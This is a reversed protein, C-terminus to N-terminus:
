AVVSAAYKARRFKLAYDHNQYYWDKAAQRKRELNKAYWAAYRAREFERRAAVIVPNATWRLPWCAACLGGRAVPRSPHCFARPGVSTQRGDLGSTKGM